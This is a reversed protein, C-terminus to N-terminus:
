ILMGLQLEVRCEARSRKILNLQLTQSVQDCLGGTNTLISLVKNCYKEIQSITTLSNLEITLQAMINDLSSSQQIDSSTFNAAYMQNALYHLSDWSLDRLSIYHRSLGSEVVQRLMTVDAELLLSLFIKM